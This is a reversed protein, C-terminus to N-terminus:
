CCFLEGAVCQLVYQVRSYQVINNQITYFMAELLSADLVMKSSNM